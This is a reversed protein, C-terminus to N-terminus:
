SVFKVFIKHDGVFALTPKNYLIEDYTENKSLMIVVTLDKKSVCYTM